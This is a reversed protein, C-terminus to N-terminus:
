RSLGAWVDRRMDYLRADDDYHAISRLYTDDAEVKGTTVHLHEVVSDFCPRFRARMKATAIFETDCYNHDYCEPYFSGPGEDAVGGVRDLYTRHVLSHTSHMGALVNANLLDNTGVVQFWGNSSEIAVSDWHPHWVLDDAGTFMWEADSLLYGTNLAGAYNKTRANVTPTLGADYVADRSDVDGSEVVFTIRHPNDTNAYINDVLGKIADPRGLTPIIVDIM